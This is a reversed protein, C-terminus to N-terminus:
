KKDQQTLKKKKSASTVCGKRISITAGTQGKLDPHTGYSADVWWHVVNLDNTNLHIKVSNITANLYSLVRQLKKWDDEDPNLVRTTIFEMSLQIYLRARKSLLILKAVLLHFVIQDTECLKVCVNDVKLLHNGAPTKITKLMEEPFEDIAETIYSDMSAIAEGQSSHDLGMGAYTHKKERVVPMNNGYIGKMYDVFKTVEERNKHSVKMDDVHWVM